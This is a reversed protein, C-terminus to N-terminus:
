DKLAPAVNEVNIQLLIYFILENNKTNLQFFKYKCNKM